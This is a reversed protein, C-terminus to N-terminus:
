ARSTAEAPIYGDYADRTAPVAADRRAPEAHREAPLRESVMGSPKVSPSRGNGNGRRTADANEYDLIGLFATFWGSFRDFIALYTLM